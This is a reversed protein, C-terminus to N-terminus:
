QPARAAGNRGLHQRQCVRESAKDIGGTADAHAKCITSDILVYEFDSDARLKNFLLDWVGAMAWCRFRADAGTWKGFEHPLLM